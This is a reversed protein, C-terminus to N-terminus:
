EESRCATVTINSSTANFITLNLTIISDCGLANSLTQTYTGSATYTQGNLTYTYCSAQTISSSSPQNIILNLTLTSDCGAVNTLNQIYAGSATYTQGNLTYSSCATVNMLSTTSYNVTLNLTVTSDCGNVSSLLQMYTGSTTYTQGNLTYTNCATVTSTTALIAPQTITFVQNATCGNLDTVTCTWTGHTLGTVSTTGDGTPNRPTWNYTYPSIGGTAPNVVAAGNSGGNCSVNTQSLLTLTPNYVTLTAQSSTTSCAGNSTICRYLYGDMGTTAGIINLTATTVNSYVGGNTINNFGFGANLQWQYGTAGTAAVSFSTNGNHCVSANSPPINITPNSCAPAEFLRFNDVAMEESGSNNSSFSVRLDLITGTSPISFTFEQFAYALSTGEGVLDNNADLALTNTAGSSATAYFGLAKTYAGGDIRYELIIYDQNAGFALSEWTGGINGQAAFLGRFSLGTKGSINIGTWTVNQASSISSNVCTPGQDIDEGAWFKSGQFATYPGAQMAIDSTAVRNFYATAPPPSTPCFFSVSPTRTGSSPAGADEFNDSWFQTQADLNSFLIFTLLLLFYHKM